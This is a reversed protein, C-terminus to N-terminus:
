KKILSLIEIAKIMVTNLDWQHIAKMLASGAAKIKPGVLLKHAERNWVEEPISQFIEELKEKTNGRGQIGVLNRKDRELAAIYPQKVGLERALQEQTWGKCARLIKIDNKTM